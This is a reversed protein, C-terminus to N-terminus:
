LEGAFAKKLISKKLEDLDALKTRYLAELKKTETSLADLKAVITRQEPLPPLFFKFAFLHERNVKPMGARGSGLIAYDTFGSTLLLYYLFDRNLANYPLLPYIDASCLGAFDPRVVKMLYPRIKSYLVMGNDFLFKGSILKEDKATKLNSLEGSKAEINGAGVHVLNLFEKKRPDILKSSIKCVEELTKEEWGKGPNEFVNQLYSEFLEKANQLNKEANEKAKAVSEFAEDLITVIRRQEPLPPLPIGINKLNEQNLKPVTLGTTYKTLDTFYFFFVIWSDLVTDRDPRIVHAHNNVWYKGEVVFATYEGAEWKAGDEGILVLKEDFIYDHIYDQIGTAGYYPYKGGIRDRKTVPKRRSDLVECIEGLKKTQWNTRM